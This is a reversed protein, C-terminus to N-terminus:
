HLTLSTVINFYFPFESSLTRDEGSRLLLKLTRKVEKWFLKEKRQMKTTFEQLLLCNVGVKQVM